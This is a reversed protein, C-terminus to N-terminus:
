LKLFASRWHFSCIHADNESVPFHHATPSLAALSALFGHLFITLFFYPRLNALVKSLLLSFGYNLKLCRLLSQPEWKLIEEKTSNRVM